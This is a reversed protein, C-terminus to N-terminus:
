IPITALECTPWIRAHSHKASSRSFSHNAGCMSGSKPLTLLDMPTPQPWSRYRRIREGCDLLCVTLLVKKM